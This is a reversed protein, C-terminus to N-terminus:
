VPPPPCGLDPINRPMDWEPNYVPRQPKKPGDALWISDRRGELERITLEELWLDRQHSYDLFQHLFRSYPHDNPGLNPAPVKFNQNHLLEHRAEALIDALPLNRNSLRCVWWDSPIMHDTRQQFDILATRDDVM